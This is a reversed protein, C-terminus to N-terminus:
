LGVSTSRRFIQLYDCECCTLLLNEDQFIYIGSCAVAAFSAFRSSSTCAKEPTMYLVDFEGSEARSCVSLDTQASGIFEARIGRQKLGMVQLNSCHSCHGVIIVIVIKYVDASIVIFNDCLLMNLFWSQELERWDLLTDSYVIQKVHLLLVVIEISVSSLM